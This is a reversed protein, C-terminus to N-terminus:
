ANGMTLAGQDAIFQIPTWTRGGDVSRRLALDVDDWDGGTLRRGECFALITGRTTVVLSPIRYNAYQRDGNQFLVVEELIPQSDAARVKGNGVCLVGVLCCLGALGFTWNCM